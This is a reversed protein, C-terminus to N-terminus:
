FCGLGNKEINMLSKNQAASPAFSAIFRNALPRRYISEMIEDKSLKYEQVFREQMGSDMENSLFARTNKEMDVGVEMTVSFIDWHHFRFHSPIEM